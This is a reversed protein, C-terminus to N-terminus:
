WDREQPTPLEKQQLPGSGLDCWVTYRHGNPTFLFNGHWILIHLIAATYSLQDLIFGKCNLGKGSRDVVQFGLRSQIGGVMTGGEPFFQIDANKEEQRVTWAPRRAPNVITLMKEFYFDPPLNKM